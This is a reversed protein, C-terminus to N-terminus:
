PEYADLRTLPGRIADDLSTIEMRGAGDYYMLMYTTTGKRVGCYAGVGGPNSGLVFRHCDHQDGLSLLSQDETFTVDKGIIVSPLWRMGLMAGSAGSSSPHLQVQSFLFKQAAKDQFTYDLTWREGQQVKKWSERSPDVGQSAPTLGFDSATVLVQHDAGRVPHSKEPASACGLALVTPLTIAVALARSM